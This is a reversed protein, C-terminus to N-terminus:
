AVEREPPDDSYRGDDTLFIWGMGRFAFPEAAPDQHEKLMLGLDYAEAPREHTWRHCRRCAHVFNSLRDFKTRDPRGGAKRSIRHAPDTAVGTCGALAMECLGGSRGALASLIWPAAARLRVNVKSSVSTRENHCRRCNRRPKALTNEPTYLHGKPCATFTEGYRRTNEAGTVPELHDPNVCGKNRCKHDITLGTPIPGVHIEYAVRHVNCNRRGFRFQGYGGQKKKAGVWEWCGTEGLVWSLAFRQRDPLGKFFPSRRLRGDCLDGCSFWSRREAEALVEAIRGRGVAALADRGGQTSPRFARRKVRPSEAATPGTYRRSSM